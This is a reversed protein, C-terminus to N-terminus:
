SIKFLYKGFDAPNKDNKSLNCTPCALVINNIVHQGNKSLPYYHDIHPIITQLSIGCWYCNLAYKKVTLLQSTSIDSSQTITRRRHRSNALAVKGKESTYYIKNYNAKKDKNVANYKDNKVKLKDKNQEYYKKTQQKIKEPHNKKYEKSKKLLAEKNQQNYFARYEKTCTKCQYNIGDSTAAKKTFNSLPQSINCKTCTKLM